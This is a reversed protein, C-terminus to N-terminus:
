IKVDGVVCVIGVTRLGSVRVGSRIDYSLRRVSTVFPAMSHHTPRHNRPHATLILTLGRVCGDRNFWVNFVMVRREASETSLASYGVRPVSACIARYTHPCTLLWGLHESECM